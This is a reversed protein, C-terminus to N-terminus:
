ALLPPIKFYGDKLHKSLKEPEIDYSRPKDPMRPCLYGLLMEGKLQLKQLQAFYATIREFEAGFRQREGSKLELRALQAVKVIEAGLTM